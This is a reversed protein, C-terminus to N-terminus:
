LSDLIGSLKIVSNGITKHTWPYDMVHLDIESPHLYTKMFRTAHHYPQGWKKVFVSQPIGSGRLCGTWARDLWTGYTSDSWVVASPRLKCLDGTKAIRWITSGGASHGVVKYDIPGLTVVGSHRLLIGNVEEAFALFEGPKRWVLSNRGRPTPGHVSWPMEPLVVVINKNRYPVFQNLVRDEFTREQVFGWHGHFWFIVTLPKSMCTTRPIWVIADRHGSSHLSDEGGSYKFVYSTSDDPSRKQLATTWESVTKNWARPHADITHVQAKANPSALYTLLLIFLVRNVMTM